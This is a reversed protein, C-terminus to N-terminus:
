DARCDRIFLKVPIEKESILYGYPVHVPAVFFPFRACLASAETASAGTRREPNEFNALALPLSVVM